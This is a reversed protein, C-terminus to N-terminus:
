RSSAPAALAEDILREPDQAGLGHLVLPMLPLRPDLPPATNESGARSGHVVAVLFRAGEEAGPEGPLEGQQQAERLFVSVLERWQPLPSDIGLDRLSKDLPFDFAAAAVPDAELREGCRHLFCLLGRLGGAPFATRAEADCENLAAGLAAVLDIALSRKTPYHYALVGKSLGLRAGIASLSSDGYGHEAMEDAAARLLRKRTAASRQAQTMRCLM